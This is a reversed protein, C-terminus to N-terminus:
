PVAGHDLLPTAPHPQQKLEHVIDEVMVTLKDKSSTEPMPFKTPPFIVKEVPITAWTTPPFVNCQRHHHMAPGACWGETRSDSWTTKRKEM